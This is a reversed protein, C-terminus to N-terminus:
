KSLVQIVKQNLILSDKLSINGVKSEIDIKESFDDFYVAGIFGEDKSIAIVRYQNAGVGDIRFRDIMLFYDINNQSHINIINFNATEILKNEGSFDFYKQFNEKTGIFLADDEWYCKVPEITEYDLIKIDFDYLSKSNFADGKDSIYYWNNEDFVVTDKANVFFAREHDMGCSFIIFTLIITKYSKNKLINVLM